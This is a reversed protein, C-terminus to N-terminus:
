QERSNSATSLQRSETAPNDAAPADLAPDDRLPLTSAPARGVKQAPIGSWATGAPLVEGKMVLSLDALTADHEITSGYLVVSKDGVSARDRIIVHDMKMVRDEFLHTQLSANTGVSVDDGLTVLDFETLYTTDILTRRGIKAGYLRLLPGLLPTGTLWTLLAPVAAAEYIGTAFETRRVFGSWLPEVRPRYRGVMAWKLLAVLVVVALSSVLAIVPAVLVTLLMGQTAALRSVFFLTGFMAVALLSSPLVIRLFEIAYRAQVRRRSPAFTQAETFEEYMERRPLHIPPSGLWSSDAEVGSTPPVSRVGVLSGEGMRSGSPIFAANGVFARAGIETAQFAVHGNAYTASGVSAMDAIFSGEGLTLLDPDINAITSIEAGKGVKTGMARLWMSTYLTAYMSNNLMLSMELLKDGMWKELGLQSRLHHVGPPTETLALRRCGLVLACSAAVFVPGSLATAVLAPGVGFNLLVLWVLVVVPLLVFFPLLELLTIGAAFGTKLQQSWTRPAQDCSTMVGIVPDVAEPTAEAPSGAWAAGAPVIRGAPLLSQERLVAGDEVASGAELLSQSGLTAGAGVSIVGLTLVGDAVRHGHLQTGYGITAGRGVDLMAPLSIEATGIHAEDHIRAGALRLYTAAWPSGSLVTLPSIVMLKQITWVRLHTWSWLPHDGPQLGRSLLRSGAIPLGWRVLLFFVPMALALEVVLRLSPEGGNLVYIVAAPFLFLGVIGYLTALQASGFAAVRRSSSQVPRATGSEGATAGSRADEELHGALSRVTPHRYLELISLGAGLDSSRMTSIIRAALLSHGGLADFFNAEVSVSGGPLGFAEEWLGAIWAEVPTDPAVYAGTDRMLRPGQPEPLAKRDAKGSPLMPITSVVDLYAPVMYPPLQEIVLDHLETILGETDDASRPIVYAALEGGTDPAPLLTVVAATVREHQLLMGEIEQLDVRHGRVKVESDARGLYELEGDPLFRGLDGTRYIRDGPFGNPDPLFRDATLEPRNVYGIAVGPGGVCIEGIEGNGVPRREDDLLTVRYTPLPRGITVPKGPYLEAMTCTVTTETPGYTNLIRRGPGWRDVLERPCAEGGVNVTRILPLTRDLTALVTPVCYIMSIEHEALFDALGSGVRRGDTPGAVLTAGVAWTPWIEEISFDFAITMGQYVRDSPEVGYLVPVIAIFNCISSQAIEVGKPRGSSGSTYIIYCVPDGDTEVSPRWSPAGALAGGLEDLYVPPCPLGSCTAAFSSTTIVMGLESDEAIYQVRDAPAAPDIPVFTAETKTVALLTIYTNVSRDLLIGVRVGARVGLSLLHNALRNARQDLDAYSLREGDCELATAAPRQDCTSEFYQSLRTAEHPQHHPGAVNDAFHFSRNTTSHGSDSPTTFGPIFGRDDHETAM